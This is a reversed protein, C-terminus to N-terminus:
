EPVEATPLSSDPADCAPSAFSAVLRASALLCAIQHAKKNEFMDRRFDDNNTDPEQSAKSHSRSPCHKGLMIVESEIDNFRSDQAEDASPTRAEQVERLWHQVHSPVSTTTDSNM